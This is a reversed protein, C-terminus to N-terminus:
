GDLARVMLELCYPCLVPNTRWNHFPHLPFQTVYRLKWRAQEQLSRLADLSM